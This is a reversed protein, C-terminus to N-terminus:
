SGIFLFLAPETPLANPECARSISNPDGPGFLALYLLTYRCDLWVSFHTDTIWSSVTVRTHLGSLCLLTHRYDLCLLTDRHDLWVCYHTDTIWGSGSIHIQLGSLCLLTCRYCTCVVFICVCSFLQLLFKLSIYVGFMLKWDGCAQVCKHMCVQKYKHVSMCCVCLLYIISLCFDKGKNNVVM